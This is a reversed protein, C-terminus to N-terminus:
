PETAIIQAAGGPFRVALQTKGGATQVCYLRGGDTPAAPDAGNAFEDVLILGGQSDIVVRKVIEGGSPLTWFSFGMAATAASVADVAVRFIAGLSTGGGGAGARFDLEFIQDGVQSDEPVALTGRHGFAEMNAGQATAADLYISAYQDSAVILGLNGDNQTSFGGIRLARTVSDWSFYEADGGFAGSDNFQVAGSSGAPIMMSQGGKSHPNRAM